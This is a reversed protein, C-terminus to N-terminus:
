EILMGAYGVVADRDGIPADGSTAYRILEARTAGLEKAAAIVAAAPHRGCMSVRERQCVALLEAEDLREVQAIAKRDLERAVADPEYHSMDSSAVLLVEDPGGLAIVVRALARGLERLPELRGESVVIAAIALDARHWHLFPVVVEIAHEPRRASAHAEADIEIAPCETTLREVLEPDSAVDGLPSRWTGAPFLALRAGAGTHNPCLIIARRPVAVAAFLSGAVGGSYQWGAHPAIVGLARRTAGGTPSLDSLADRATPQDSPYFGGRPWRPSGVLAERLATM